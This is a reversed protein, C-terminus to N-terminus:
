GPPTGARMKERAWAEAEAISETIFYPMPPPQLWFVATIAGRILPSSVCFAVGLCNRRVIADHKRLWEAQLRRNKAKTNRSARADYITVYLGRKILAAYEDLYRQFAEDSAEGLFTIRVLPWGSTDITIAGQKAADTSTAM